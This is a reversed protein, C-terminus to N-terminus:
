RLRGLVSKSWGWLISRHPGDFRGNTCIATNQQSL